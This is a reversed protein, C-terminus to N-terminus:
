TKHLNQSSLLELRWVYLFFTIFVNLFFGSFSSFSFKYGVGLPMVAGAPQYHTLVSIKKKPQFGKKGRGVEHQRRLRQSGSDATALKRNEGACM